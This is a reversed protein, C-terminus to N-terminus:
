LNILLFIKKDCSTNQSKQDFLSKLLGSARYSCIESNQGLFLYERLAQHHLPKIQSWEDYRHVILLMKMDFYKSKSTKRLCHILYKRRMMRGMIPDYAPTTEEYSLILVGLIKDYLQMFSRKKQDLM